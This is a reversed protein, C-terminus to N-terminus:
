LAVVVIRRPPLGHAFPLPPELMAQRPTRFSNLTHTPHRHVPVTVSGSSLRDLRQQQSATRHARAGKGCQNGM